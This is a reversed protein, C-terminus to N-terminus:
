PTSSGRASATPCAFAPLPTAAATLQHRPALLEFRGHPRSCLVLRPFSRVQFHEVTLHDSLFIELSERHKVIKLPFCKDADLFEVIAARDVRVFQM